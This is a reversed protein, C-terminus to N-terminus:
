VSPHLKGNKNNVLLSQLAFESFFNPLLVLSFQGSNETKCKLAKTRLRRQTKEAVKQKQRWKESMKGFLRISACQVQERIADNFFVDFKM